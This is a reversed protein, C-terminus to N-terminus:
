NHGGVWWTGINANTYGNVSVSFLCFSLCLYSKYSVLHMCIFVYFTNCYMDWVSSILVNNWSVTCSFYLVFITFLKWNKSDEYGYPSINWHQPLISFDIAPNPPLTGRRNLPCLYFYYTWKTWFIPIFFTQIWEFFTKTFSFSFPNQIRIYWHGCLKWLYVLLDLPLCNNNDGLM